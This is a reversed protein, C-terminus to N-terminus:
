FKTGAQCEEDGGNTAHYRRIHVSTSYTKCTDADGVNAWDLFPQREEETGLGMAEYMGQIEDLTHIRM